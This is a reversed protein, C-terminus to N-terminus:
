EEAPPSPRPIPEPPDPAPTDKDRHVAAFMWALQEVAEVTRVALAREFTWGPADSLGTVFGSDAPL